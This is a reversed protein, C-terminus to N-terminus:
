NYRLGLGITFVAASLAMIFILAYIDKKDGTLVGEEGPELLVVKDIGEKGGEVTFDMDEAVKYGEPAEKEVLTYTKGLVLSETIHSENTTIWEDVTAGTEKDVIALKAGPIRERKLFSEVDASEDDGSRKEVKTVEVQSIDDKINLDYSLIPDGTERPTGEVYFKGSNILYGEPPTIEKVYYMPNHGPSEAKMIGAILANPLEMDFIAVPKDNSSDSKKVREKSILTDKPLIINGESDKIDCNLFLGIDAGELYADTKSDQKSVKIVVRQMTNEAEVTEVEVPEAEGKYSLTVPYEKQSLAYGLPAKVERLIYRGLPLGDIRGLGEEDTTISGMAQGKGALLRDSSDPGYIDEAAYVEFVAGKLPVKNYIFEHNASVGSLQAGKKVLEISGKTSTNSFNLNLTSPGTAKASATVGEEPMFYGKRPTKEVASYTHTRAAINAKLKDDAQRKAEAKAANYADEKSLYGKVQTKYYYSLEGYNVCYGVKASAKESMEESYDMSAKGSNDTKKCGLSKGDVFFEIEVDGLPAGTEEDTKIVNIKTKLNGRSEAEASVDAFRPLEMPNGVMMALPQEGPNESNYVNYYETPVTAEIDNVMSGSLGYFTSGMCSAAQDMATVADKGELVAWIYVQVLVYFDYDESSERSYYYNLAKNVRLNEGYSMSTYTVRSNAPAGRRVCFAKRGDLEIIYCRQNEGLEGVVLNFPMKRINSRGYHVGSESAFVWEAEGFLSLTPVLMAVILCSVLIKKLKKKLL